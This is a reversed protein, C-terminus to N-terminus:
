ANKTFTLSNPKRRTSHRITSELIYVGARTQLAFVNVGTVQKGNQIHEKLTRGHECNKSTRDRASIIDLHAVISELMYGAAGTGLNLNIKEEPRPLFNSMM